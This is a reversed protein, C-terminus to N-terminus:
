LNTIKPVSQSALSKTRDNSLIREAVKQTYPGTFQFRPRQNLVFSCVTGSKLVPITPHHLWLQVSPHTFVIIPSVEVIFGFSHLLGSLIAANSKAQLSVSNVDYKQLIGQFFWRDGYCVYKGSYNKTEFVFIGTPGVVIHDINGKSGPLMVDNLLLFEDSLYSLEAALRIEGEWGKRTSAAGTWYSFGVAMMVLGTSGIVLGAVEGSTPDLVSLALGIPVAL